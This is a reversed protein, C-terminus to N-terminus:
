QKLGIVSINAKDAEKRFKDIDIIITKGAELALVKAKVKQMTHLTDIGVV